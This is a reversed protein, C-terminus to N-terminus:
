LEVGQDNNILKRKVKVSKHKECKECLNRVNKNKLTKKEFKM